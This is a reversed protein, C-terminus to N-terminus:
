GELPLQATAAAGPAREQAELMRLTERYGADVALQWDRWDLMRVHDLPPTILLDARARCHESTAESHVMAARTLTSVLGPWGTGRRQRLWLRWWPPTAFEEIQARLEIDARISVATIHAMGDDAVEGARFLYQGGPLCIWRLYAGLTTRQADSLHAFLAIRGILSPLDAPLM